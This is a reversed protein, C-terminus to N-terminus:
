ILRDLNKDFIYIYICMYVHLLIELWWKFVTMKWISLIKKNNRSKKKIIILGYRDNKLHNETAAIKLNYQTYMYM